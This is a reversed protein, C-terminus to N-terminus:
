RPGRRQEQLAVLQATAAERFHWWNPNGKADLRDPDGGNGSQACLHKAIREAPDTAPVFEDDMTHM